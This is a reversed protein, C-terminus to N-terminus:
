RGLAAAIAARLFDRVEDAGGAEAKTTKFSHLPRAQWTWSALGAPLDLQCTRNVLGDAPLEAHRFIRKRTECLHSAQRPRTPGHRVRTIDRKWSGHGGKGRM